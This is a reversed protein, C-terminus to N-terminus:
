QIKSGSALPRFDCLGSFVLMIEDRPIKHAKEKKETDKQLKASEILLGAKMVNVFVRKIRDWAEESALRIVSLTRQQATLCLGFRSESQPSFKAIDRVKIKEAEPAVSSSCTHCQSQREKAEAESNQEIEVRPETHMLPGVAVDNQSWKGRSWRSAAAQQRPQHRHWAVYSRDIADVQRGSLGAAVYRLGEQSCRDAGRQDLERRLAVVGRQQLTQARVAHVARGMRTYVSAEKLALARVADDVAAFFDVRLFLIMAAVEDVALLPDIRNQARFRREGRNNSGRVGISRALMRTLTGARTEASLASITWSHPPSSANPDQPTAAETGSSSTM